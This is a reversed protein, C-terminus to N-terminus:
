PSGPEESPEDGRLDTPDSMPGTAGATRNPRDHRNGAAEVLKPVVHETFHAEPDDHGISANLVAAGKAAAALRLRDRAPEDISGGAVVALLHHEDAIARCAEAESFVGIASFGHSELVAIAVRMKEPSRGVVVVNMIDSM